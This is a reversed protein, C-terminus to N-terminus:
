LRFVVSSRFTELVENLNNLKIHCYQQHKPQQFTTESVWVVYAGARFGACIGTWSDELILCDKINVNLRHAAYLFIDPEPKGLPVDDRSIIHPFIGILQAYTLCEQANKRSSNTALCYPIHNDLIAALLPWFGPKIPIGQQQVIKYWCQSSLTNFVSLDFTKGFTKILQKEVDAHSLGALNVPQLQHCPYDMQQIAQQWAQLYTTETDLVLGDMDFLVAAFDTLKPKSLKLTNM